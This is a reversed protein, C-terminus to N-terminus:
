VYVISSGLSYILIKNIFCAKKAHVFVLSSSGKGGKTCLYSPCTTEEFVSVSPTGFTVSPHESPKQGKQCRMVKPNELFM